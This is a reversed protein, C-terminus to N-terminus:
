SWGGSSIEGAQNVRFQYVNGDSGTIKITWSDVAPTPSSSPQGDAAYRFPAIDMAGNPSLFYFKFDSGDDLNISSVGAAYDEQVLLTESTGGATFCVAGMEIKNSLNDAEVFYSAVQDCDSMRGTQARNQADQLLSTLQKKSAVVQQRDNFKLFASVGAGVILGIIAVSVLIEILTFGPNLSPEFNFEVKSRQSNKLRSLNAKLRAFEIQSTSFFNPM